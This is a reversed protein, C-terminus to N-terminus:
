GTPRLQVWDTGDPRVGPWVGGKTLPRGPSRSGPGKLSWDPSFRNIMDAAHAVAREDTGSLDATLLDNFAWCVGLPDRYVCSHLDLDRVYAV